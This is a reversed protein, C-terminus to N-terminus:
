GSMISFKKRIFTTSRLFVMDSFDLPQSDAYFNEFFQEMLFCTLQFIAPRFFPRKPSLIHFLTGLDSYAVVLDNTFFFRQYSNDETKIAQVAIPAFPALFVVSAYQLSFLFSELKVVPSKKLM